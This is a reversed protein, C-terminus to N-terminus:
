ICYFTLDQGHLTPKKWNKKFLYENSKGITEHQTGLLTQYIIGYIQHESRHLKCNIYVPTVNSFGNSLMKLFQKLTTTKGTAYGGTLLLNQPSLGYKIASCHTAMMTLQRDRYKYVDMEPLYNMEFVEKNLFIPMETNIIEFLDEANM